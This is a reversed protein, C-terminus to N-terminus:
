RAITLTYAPLYAHWTEIHNVLHARMHTRSATEQECGKCAGLQMRM